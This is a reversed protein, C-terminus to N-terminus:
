FENPINKNQKTNTPQQKQKTKIQLFSNSISIGNNITLMATRRLLCGCIVKINIVKHGQGLSVQHGRGSVDRKADQRKLKHDDNNKNNNNKNQNDDDNENDDDDDSDDDDDDDDSFEM